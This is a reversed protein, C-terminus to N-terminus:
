WLYDFRLEGYEHNDPQTKFEKSTLHYGYTLAMDDWSLGLGSRLSGTLWEKDVHHSNGDTNGDLFINRLVAKSSVGGYLFFGLGTRKKLTIATTATHLSIAGFDKPINWGIRGDIAIEANTHVNGLTGALKTIVDAESDYALREFTHRRRQEYSLMFGPEDHLQNHWGSAEDNKFWAHFFDQTEEAKASPGVVGLAITFIDARKLSYGAVSGGLFLWGAYPRDGPVVEYSKKDKPTYLQQALTVGIAQYSQPVGWGEFTEIFDQSWHHDDFSRSWQLGWGHTYYMDQKAFFDNDFLFTARDIPEVGYLAYSLIILPLIKKQM